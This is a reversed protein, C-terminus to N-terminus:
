NKPLDRIIAGGREATGAAPWLPRSPLSSDSTTAKRLAPIEMPPAAGPKFMVHARSVSGKSRKRALTLLCYLAERLAPPTQYPKALGRGENNEADPDEHLSSMFVRACILSGMERICYHLSSRSSTNANDRRPFSVPSRYFHEPKEVPVGLSAPRECYHGGSNGSHDDPQFLDIQWDSM